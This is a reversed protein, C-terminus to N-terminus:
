VNPFLEEQVKECLQIAATAWEAEDTPAGINCAKIFSSHLRSMADDQQGDSSHFDIESIVNGARDLAILERIDELQNYGVEFRCHKSGISAEVHLVNTEENFVVSKLKFNRGKDQDGLYFAIEIGHVLLDFTLEQTSKNHPVLLKFVLLPAHYLNSLAQQFQPLYRYCHGTYYIVGYAKSLRYLTQAEKYNLTIPKETLVHQHNEIAKKTLHYHTDSPTAIILADCNELTTNCENERLDYGQLDLTPYNDSLKRYHKSAIGGKFGVVGLTFLKLSKAENHKKAADVARSFTGLHIQRGLENYIHAEYTTGNKAVSVGPYGAKTKYPRKNVAQEDPSAWRVNGPEYNGDNNIRDISHRASPKPGVYDLFLKFSKEWPPHMKIGRGGYNEYDKNNPNTCRQKISVWARYESTGTLGKPGELKGIPGPDGNNRFRQYHASCYGGSRYKSKCGEVSCKRETM